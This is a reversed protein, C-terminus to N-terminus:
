KKILSQVFRDLPVDATATFLAGAFATSLMSSMEAESFAAARTACLAGVGFTYIWTQEFVTRALPESLGYEEQLLRVADVAMIGLREFLDDFSGVTDNETMFLLQYLKPERVAFGLMGVGVRKFPPLDEPATAIIGRLREMAADRVQRQVEEMSQFVTFVPRASSGLRAGLDRATLAEMGKESVLELAAQVIEEKTFKPKPPM